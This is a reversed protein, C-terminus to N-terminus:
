PCRNREDMRQIRARANAPLMQETLETMLNPLKRPDIFNEAVATPSAKGLEQWDTVSFAAFGLTDSGHSFVIFRIEFKPSLLDNLTCITVHRDAIDM